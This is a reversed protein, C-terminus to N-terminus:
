AALLVLDLVVATAATITGAIVVVATNSGSAATATSSFLEDLLRTM